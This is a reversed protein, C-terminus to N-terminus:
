SMPFRPAGDELPVRFANTVYSITTYFGALVVIELLQAASWATAARAWLADAVANGDILSDVLAILLRDPESWAESGNGRTAAIQEPTFGAKAAFFHVHVGWEYESGRRATTRLIVIERERLSISGKDLLGGGKIRTLVRPNHALVRFLKLPPGGPPPMTALIEAAEPPFPTELPMLRPQM